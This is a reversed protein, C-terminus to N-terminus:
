HSSSFLMLDIDFIGAQLLVLAPTRALEGRTHIQDPVIIRLSGCGCAISNAMANDLFIDCIQSM